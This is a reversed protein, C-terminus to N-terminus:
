LATVVIVCFYRLSVLVFNYRMEDERSSSNMDQGHFCCFLVIITRVPVPSFWLLEQQWFIISNGNITSHVIGGLKSM